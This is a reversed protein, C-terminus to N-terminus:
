SPTRDPVVPGSRLGALVSAAFTDPVELMPVHGVGPLLDLVADRREGVLRHAMGVVAVPDATGWVVRLPSPHQVIAGTWRPEHQRRGDLYRILRPLLLHGDDQAMLAWLARVDERAMPTDGFTRALGRTVLLRLVPTAVRPLRRDPLREGLRQGATLRAMSLFVSGNALVRRRIRFPLGGGDAGADLDRALLEGGVSDGMDHTVLDVEDLGRATVMAAVVDAQGELPYARDPKASSGHGPLDLALVRRTPALRDVLHRWDWACTPFGHVLVVPPGDENGSCPVDLVWTPTGALPELTGRQRWARAAEPMRTM